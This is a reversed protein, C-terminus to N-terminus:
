VLSLERNAWTKLRGMWAELQPYMYWVTGLGFIAGSLLRLEWTSERWGFLQTFGDLAMPLALLGYQWLTIPRLRYRVMQFLLGLLGMAAYIALCRECVAMQHGNIHFSHNPDQVCVLHCFDFLPRSLWGWGAGELVPVLFGMILYFFSVANLIWLWHKGIFRCFRLLGRVIRGSLEKRWPSVEPEFAVSLPDIKPKSLAEKDETM